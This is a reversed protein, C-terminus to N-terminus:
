FPAALAAAAERLALAGSPNGQEDYQTAYEELMAVIDQILVYAGPETALIARITNTSAERAEPVDSVLGLGLTHGLKRGIEHDERAPTLNGGTLMEPHLQIPVPDHSIYSPTIGAAGLVLKADEVSMPPLYDAGMASMRENVLTAPDHETRGQQWLRPSPGFGEHTSDESEERLEFVELGPWKERAQRLADDHDFSGPAKDLIGSEDVLRGVWRLTVANDRVDQEPYLEIRRSAASEVKSPAQIIPDYYQRGRPM